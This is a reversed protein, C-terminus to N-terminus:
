KRVKIALTRYVFAMVDSYEKTKTAATAGSHGSKTEVRLLPSAGIEELKAAFKYAHAPHVRDDHAGTYLMVPPYSRNVINHYPSYKQLFERDKPNDPDGYEPVWAKGIHLNHFRLMDLVPYGILAGDILEPHQTLIAGVLLGGNSVGFAIIKSGKKRFHELVATFDDFVHQKKERMGKRHWEEGYETGGRLNAVVFTGNDELFPIVHPFYRPTASIAFGGYGWALVRNERKGKRHVKFAHIKTSDKSKVWVNEIAFDGPIEKSDIIALNDNELCYIRYPVLFSEYTFVCKDGDSDLSSITGAQEPETERHKKGDIGFTRITSSADVLYTAVIRDKAIVVEQLPYPQEGVIEVAERKENMALIRGMGKRDFSALYFRGDVFDIPWAIFGGKGYIMSWSETKEIRGAYVDSKTWGYAVTLLAKSSGVSNKLSISYSTPVGKGFVMQDTGDERLVIRMAPPGVGDPTKEKQYFRGYYYKKENLWVLDSFMGKMEDLKERSETKMVKLIGEDSGGFSYTFAVIDGKASAYFQQLVVDKGLEASNVLENVDGKSDILNLKFQHRDRLLVFHGNPRTKVFLVYPFAYYKKIRNQLKKSVSSLLEKTALSRKSYWRAVGPDDLKELWTYSDSSEAMPVMEKHIKDEWEIRIAQPIRAVSLRVHNLKLVSM